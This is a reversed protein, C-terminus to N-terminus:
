CAWATPMIPRMKLSLFRLNLVALCHSAVHGALPVHPVPQGTLEAGVGSRLAEGQLRAATLVLQGQPPARPPASTTCEPCMSVDPAERGKRQKRMGPVQVGRVMQLM